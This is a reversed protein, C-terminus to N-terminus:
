IKEKVWKIEKQIEKYKDQKPENSDLLYNTLSNYTNDRQLEATQDQTKQRNPDLLKENQKAFADKIPKLRRKEMHFNVKLNQLEKEIELMSTSTEYLKDEIERILRQYILSYIVKM